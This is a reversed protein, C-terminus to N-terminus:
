RGIMTQQADVAARLHATDDRRDFLPAAWDGSRHLHEALQSRLRDREDSCAPDDILNHIADPDTAFDYLEERLRHEFLAVRAAISPDHEAAERMAAWSRGSQSENRFVRQGDSWANFIYGFRGDQVCRMPYSRRAATENFETFVMSRGEQTSGDLLPLFSFGDRQPVPLGCWAAVTAFWDIGSVFHRDDVSDATTLGPARVIWPTRTSHLYCNTKAFPLAMGNDSLFLVLTEDARGSAALAALIAGVTDDCRRVSSYYESMELRVAPLDPLFGPVRVEAATYSRSPAPTPESWTQAEQESGHFPRHPDHSNAMLYFPRDDCAALFERVGQGYLAPSRGRDFDDMDRHHDWADWGASSHGLKGLIGCRYGARALHEMITTTGPVLRDANFGEIGNNHPYLGTALVSRSPMCVACTVHARQFRMGSAALADIHPTTDPVPCGYCGVSDWNLDDATILLVNRHRPM